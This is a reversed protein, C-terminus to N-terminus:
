DAPFRPCPKELVEIEQTVGSPSRARGSARKSLAPEFGGPMVNSIEVLWPPRRPAEVLLELVSPIPLDGEGLAVCPWWGAPNGCLADQVNLDRLHAMVCYPLTAITAQLPDEGVRM